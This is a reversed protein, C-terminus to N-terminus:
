QIEPEIVVRRQPDGKQWLGSVRLDDDEFTDPLSTTHFDQMHATMIRDAAAKCTVVHTFGQFRVLMLNLHRHPFLRRAVGPHM